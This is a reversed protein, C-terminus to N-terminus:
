SAEESFLHWHYLLHGSVESSKQSVLVLLNKDSANEIWLPRFLPYAKDGSCKFEAKAYVELVIKFILSPILQAQPVWSTM